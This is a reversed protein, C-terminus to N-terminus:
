SSQKGDDSGNEDVVAKPQPSPKGFPLHRFIFISDILIIFGIGINFLYGPHFEITRWPGEWTISYEIISYYLPNTIASWISTFVMLHGSGTTILEQKGESLLAPIILSTSVLRSLAIAFGLIIYELWARWLSFHLLVPVCALTFLIPVILVVPKEFWKYKKMILSSPILLCLKMTKGTSIIQNAKVVSLGYIETLGFISFNVYVSFGAVLTSELVLLWYIEPFATIHQVFDRSWKSLRKSLSINQQCHSVSKNISKDENIDKLDEKAQQYSPTFGMRVSIIESFITVLVNVVSMVFFITLSFAIGLHPFIFGGFIDGLAMITALAMKVVRYSDKDTISIGVVTSAIL